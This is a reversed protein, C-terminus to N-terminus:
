EKVVKFATTQDNIRVKVFYMGSNLQSMDIQADVNNPEINMIQKGTMDFVMVNSIADKASLNLLNNVPNPYYSFGDIKNDGVSVLDTTISLTFPGELKDSWKTYHANNLLYVTGAVSPFTLTEAGSTGHADKRAVCTLNACDGTFVAIENDWGDPDAVITINGGDGVFQYWVGDNMGNNCTSQPMMGTAYTADMADDYPISPVIKANVCDDNEPRLPAIELAISFAGVDSGEHWAQLYYVSGPTLDRYVKLLNDCAVENGGCADWIAVKIDSGTAGGILAIVDTENAPMTFKYFYDLIPSTACTAYVGSDTAFQTDANTENGVSDGMPFVPLNWAGSCVDNSPPVPMKELAITFDGANIDDHWVQLTYAQGGTLGTFVKLSGAAKCELEANGCADYIAAEVNAGQDGDTLVRVKTQGPPLLFTYFLDLNPGSSDCATHNGSDSAWATSASTEHGVSQGFNYLDLSTANACDNNVPPPPTEFICLNFDGFDNNNYEFVRAYLMDGATLGDLVVKSFFGEGGDDDCDLEVLAGCTGSYVSMGTDSIGSGAVASTEFTLRGSAPVVVSYWLDGGAYYSCSPDSVGSDSAVTNNGIVSHNCTLDSVEVLIAGECNDNIPAVVGITFAGQNSGEDHWVQLIYTAGPTLGDFTKVDVGGWVSVCGVENGGCADYLAAELLAGKDGATVVSVMTQGAPVTFSYFLDTNPGYPDCTTENMDSASAYNTDGSTENGALATPTYVDLSIAGACDNNFPSYYLVIDFIGANFDDHWAQITYTSGPTLNEFTKLESGGECALETGSCADFLAAEISSGAAGTTLMNVSTAGTPVTFTYFVDLNTGYQDCSPDTATAGATAFSTDQTVENGLMSGDPPYVTLVMANACEDNALTTFTSLMSAESVDGSGCDSIVYVDYNTEPTLGTIQYAPTTTVDAVNTTASFDPTFGQPGWAIKWNTESGGATWSMDLTSGGQVAQLATPAICTVEKVQMDDIYIDNGWGSIGNLGFKVTQGAYAAVDVAQKEWGSNGNYRSFEPGVNIWATGDFVQVQVRDNSSTYSGDHYMYFSMIIANTTTPLVFDPSVFRAEGGSSVSYSNFYLVNSGSHATVSSPHTPSDTTQWKASTSTTEVSFCTPIDPPTVMDFDMLAPLATIPPCLTTFDAGEVITSSGSPGCDKTLQWNYTTTFTLGQLDYPSTANASATIWTSSSAEKYELLYAGPDGGADTWSLQASNLTITDALLGTPDLCAPMEAVKINDVHPNSYGWVSTGRFAISVNAQGAYASLDVTIETWPSVSTPTTFVSTYSVGDTSVLVEVVDDGGEDYGGADYYWFKLEPATAASLDISPTIMDATTGTSYDYDNFFACYDGEQPAGPGYDTGDDIAWDYTGNTLTWGAPFDGANEFDEEFYSGSPASAPVYAQIGDMTIEFTDGGQCTGGGNLAGNAAWWNNADFTADPGTADIRKAYGDKYEWSLGTGDGDGFVDVVDLTATLVIRVPDDGNISVTQAAHADIMPKATASPFENAFAGANSGEDYIYVFDDTVTGLASLDLTSGWAGGNPSKQLSFLTFDVAGNAYIEVVKPTGGTCDGDAVMSIVPVGQGFSLTSIILLIFLYIKKM